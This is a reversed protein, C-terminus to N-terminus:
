FGNDIFLPLLLVGPLPAQQRKGTYGNGADRDDPLNTAGGLRANRTM